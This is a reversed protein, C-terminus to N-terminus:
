KFLLYTSMIIYVTCRAQQRQQNAPNETSQGAENVPVCVDNNRLNTTKVMEYMEQTLKEPSPMEEGSARLVEALTRSKKKKNDNSTPINYAM